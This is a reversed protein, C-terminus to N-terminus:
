PGAGSLRSTGSYAKRDSVFTLIPQCLADPGTIGIRAMGALGAVLSNFDHASMRGVHGLASESAPELAAQRDHPQDMGGEDGIGDRAVEVIHPREARDEREHQARLDDGADHQRHMVRRFRRHGEIGDLVDHAVHIIAPQHAIQMRVAGRHEEEGDVHVNEAANIVPRILRRALDQPDEADDDIEQHHRGGEHAIHQGPALHAEPARGDDGIEEGRDREDALADRM